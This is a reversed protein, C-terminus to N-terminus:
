LVDLLMSRVTILLTTLELLYFFSLFKHKSKRTHSQYQYTDTPSKLKKETHRLYYVNIEGRANIVVSISVM